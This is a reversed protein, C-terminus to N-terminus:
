ANNPLFYHANLMIYHATPMEHRQVHLLMALASAYAHSAQQRSASCHLGSMCGDRDDMDRRHWTSLEKDSWTM